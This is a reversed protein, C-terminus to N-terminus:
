YFFLFRFVVARVTQHDYVIAIHMVDFKVREHQYNEDMFQIVHIKKKKKCSSNGKWNCKGGSFNCWALGSAFDFDFLGISFIQRVEGHNYFYSLTGILGGFISGSCLFLNVFSDM